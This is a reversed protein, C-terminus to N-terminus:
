KKVNKVVKKTKITKPYCEKLKENSVEFHMGDETSFYRSLGENSKKL